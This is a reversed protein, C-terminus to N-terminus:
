NIIVAYAVNNLSCIFMVAFYIFAHLSYWKGVVWMYNIFSIGIPSFLHMCIKSTFGSLFRCSPLDLGSSSFKKQPHMGFQGYLKFFAKWMAMPIKFNLVLEQLREYYNNIICIIM